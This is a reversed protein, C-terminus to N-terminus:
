KGNIVTRGRFIAMFVLLSVVMVSQVNQYFRAGEPSVAQMVATFCISVGFAGYCALLSLQIDREDPEQYSAKRAAMVFVAIAIAILGAALYAGKIAFSAIVSIVILVGMVNGMLKVKKEM